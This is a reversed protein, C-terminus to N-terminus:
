SYSQLGNSNTHNNFYTRGFEHVQRMIWVETDVDIKWTIALLSSANRGDESKADVSANVVAYNRNKAELAVTKVYYNLKQELYEATADLLVSTLREVDYKGPHVVVQDAITDVTHDVKKKRTAM